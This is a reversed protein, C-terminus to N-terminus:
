EYILQKSQNIANILYPNRLQKETLIDVERGLLEPLGFQLEWFHDAYEMPNLGEEFKILLDIDSDDSFNESVVSGFAYARQVKHSKLVRILEPLKTQLFTHM